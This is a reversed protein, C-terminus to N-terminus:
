EFMNEKKAEFFDTIFLLSGEWHRFNEKIFLKTVQKDEDGLFVFNSGWM